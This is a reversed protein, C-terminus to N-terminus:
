LGLAKNLASVVEYKARKQDSLEAFIHKRYDAWQLEHLTVKGAELSANRLLLKINKNRECAEWLAELIDKPINDVDIYKSSTHKRLALKEEETAEGYIKNKKIESKEDCSLDRISGSNPIPHTYTQMDPTIKLSVETVDYHEKELALNVEKELTRTTRYINQLESVYL